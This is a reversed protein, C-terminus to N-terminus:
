MTQKEEIVSETAQKRRYFNKIIAAVNTEIGTGTLLTDTLQLRIDDYTHFNVSDFVTEDMTKWWM